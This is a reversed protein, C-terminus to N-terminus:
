IHVIGSCKHTTLDIQLGTQGGKMTRRGQLNETPLSVNRAANEGPNHLNEAGNQWQAYPSEAFGREAAGVGQPFNSNSNEPSDTISTIIPTNANETKATLAPASADTTQSAGAPLLSALPADPTNGPSQANPAQTGSGKKNMYASVVWFKKYETDPIAEVVYYTGNVKKSYVLMPAPANNKDRFERSFKQDGSEYTALSVNDYNDLVYGIRALDNMDGMSHDVTGDTGHEKLIHMVGNTNIANVYGSYNGGLISSADAAQKESVNSISHRSFKPKPNTQYTELVVRLKEDVAGQYEDIVRQEAATHKAPDTNVVTSEAHNRQAYDKLLQAGDTQVGNQRQLNRATIELTYDSAGREAM